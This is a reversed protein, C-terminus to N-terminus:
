KFYEFCWEPNINPNIQIDNRWIIEIPQGNPATNWDKNVQTCIRNLVQNEGDFCVRKWNIKQGFKVSSALTIKKQRPEIKAPIGLMAGTGGIMGGPPRPVGPPPPLRPAPPLGGPPAPGPLSSTKNIGTGSAAVNNVTPAEAQKVM